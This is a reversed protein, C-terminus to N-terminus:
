LPLWCFTPIGCYWAIDRVFWMPISTSVTPCLAHTAQRNWLCSRSSKTLVNWLMMLDSTRVRRFRLAKKIMLGAEPINNHLCLGQCRWGINSFSRHWGSPWWGVSSLRRPERPSVMYWVRGLRVDRISERSRCINHWSSAPVFINWRCVQNRWM